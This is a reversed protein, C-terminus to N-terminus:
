ARDDMTGYALSEVQRGLFFKGDLLQHVSAVTQRTELALDNESRVHQGPFDHVGIDHAGLVVQPAAPQQLYDLWRGGADRWSARIEEATASALILVGLIRELDTVAKSVASTSVGALRAVDKITVRKTRGLLHTGTDATRSM